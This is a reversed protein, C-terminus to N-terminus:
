LEMTKTNKKIFDVAIDKSSLGGILDIHIM